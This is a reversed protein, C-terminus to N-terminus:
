LYIFMRICSFVTLTITQTDFRDFSTKFHFVRYMYDFLKRWLIKSLDPKHDIFYLNTINQEILRQQKISAVQGDTYKKIIRM